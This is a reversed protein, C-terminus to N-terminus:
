PADRPLQLPFQVSCTSAISSRLLMLLLPFFQRRAPPPLASSRPLFGASPGPSNLGCAAMADLKPASSTAQDVNGARTRGSMRTKVEIRIEEERFRIFQNSCSSFFYPIRTFSHLGQESWFLLGIERALITSWRDLCTRRLQALDFREFRLKTISRRPSRFGARDPELAARVRFFDLPVFFEAQYFSIRQCIPGPFVHPFVNARVVHGVIRQV